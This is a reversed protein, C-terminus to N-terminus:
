LEFKLGRQRQERYRAKNFRFLRAPRHHVEKQYEGVDELIDLSKLKRRFNRKDLEIDLVVEYLTQLQALTFKDPLLDFGIPAERLRQRLRQLSEDLIQNHDFALQGVESISKWRVRDKLHSSIPISSIQVLSYYATSIVRGLPHRSIDGFTKVQEYYVNELGAREKFIRKPAHDLDENPQILDGLLSWLGDYPTMNCALLLVKLEEEADYGFIVCDVSMACKYEENISSLSININEPRKTPPINKFSLPM